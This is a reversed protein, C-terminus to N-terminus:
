VKLRLQNYEFAWVQGDDFRVDIINEYTLPRRKNLVEGIEGIYESKEKGTVVSKLHEEYKDNLKKVKARMIQKGEM